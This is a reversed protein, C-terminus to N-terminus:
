SNVKLKGRDEQNSTSLRTYNNRMGAESPTGRSCNSRRITSPKFMDKAQIYEDTFAEDRRRVASGRANVEHPELEDDSIQTNSSTRSSSPRQQVEKLKVNVKELPKRHKVNIKFASHKIQYDRSEILCNSLSVMKLRANLKQPESVVVKTVKEKPVMM